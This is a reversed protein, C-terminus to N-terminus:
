TMASDGRIRAVSNRVQQAWTPPLTEGWWAEALEPPSMSTTRRVILAALVTRERPGLSASGTELPGLVKVVM